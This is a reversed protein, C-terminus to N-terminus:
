VKVTEESLELELQVGENKIQKDLDELKLRPASRLNDKRARSDASGPEIQDFNRPRSNEYLGVDLIYAEYRRGDSPAASTNTEALHILRLDTLERLAQAQHPFQQLEPYAVLFANTRKKNYVEDQIRRLYHELQNRDTDSDTHFSELKEKVGGIAVDTVDVKGIRAIDGSAIRTGLAVFLSLFDRPVGGSALCFQTFGGGSFLEDLDLGAGSKDKADELLRRMFTQLQQFRDLTYDLDVAVIDHGLEMGIYSGVGHRYLKSRHRITAIKIFLDTDKCVRHLYDLLDPQVKKFIFYLDDLVLFVAALGLGESAKDISRKYDGLSKKLAELKDDIHSRSTETQTSKEDGLEIGVNVSGAKMADKTSSRATTKQIFEDVDPQNYLRKLDAIHKRLPKLKRSRWPLWFLYPWRKRRSEYIGELLLSLVKVLVNPFSIDKYDELNIYISLEKDSQRSGLTSTLLTKGAGRRGFVVHNQKNGIRDGWGAPDHYAVKTKRGARLNEEIHTLLKDLDKM